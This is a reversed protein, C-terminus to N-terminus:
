LRGRAAEIESALLVPQRTSLLWTRHPDSEDVVEVVVAGTSVGPSSVLYASPDGASGRALRAGDADLAMVRGVFGLPLRARGARLESRTVVIRPARVALLGAALAGGVVLVIWGAAAGLAKGYAVGLAGVLSLALTWVWWSPWLRESYWSAPSTLTRGSGARVPDAM